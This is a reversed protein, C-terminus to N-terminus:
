FGLRKVIDLKDVSTEGKTLARIIADRQAVTDCRIFLGPTDAEPQLQDDRLRLRKNVWRVSISRAVADM